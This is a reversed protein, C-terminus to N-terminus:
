MAQPPFQFRAAQSKNDYVSFQSGTGVSEVGMFITPVIILVSLYCLVTKPSYIQEQM